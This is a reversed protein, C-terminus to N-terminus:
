TMVKIISVLWHRWMLNSRKLLEVESKMLRLRKLLMM